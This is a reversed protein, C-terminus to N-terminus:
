VVAPKARIGVGRSGNRFAKHSGDLKSQTSNTSRDIAVGSVNVLM